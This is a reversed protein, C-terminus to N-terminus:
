GNAAHILSWDGGECKATKGDMYSRLTKNVAAAQLDPDGNRRLLRVIEKASLPGSERLLSEIKEAILLYSDYAFPM